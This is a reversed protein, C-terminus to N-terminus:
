TAAFSGARRNSAMTQELTSTDSWSGYFETGYFIYLIGSSLGM